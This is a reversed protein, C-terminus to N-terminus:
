KLWLNFLGQIVWATAFGALFLAYSNRKRRFGELAGALIALPFVINFLWIHTM